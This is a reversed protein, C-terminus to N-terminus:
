RGDYRVVSVILSGMLFRKLLHSATEKTVTEKLVKQM